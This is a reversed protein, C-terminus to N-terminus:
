RSWVGPLQRRAIEVVIETRREEFRNAPQRPVGDRAGFRPQQGRVAAIDEPGKVPDGCDDLESRSAAVLEARQDLGRPRAAPQQVDMQNVHRGGGELERAPREGGQVVKADDSVLRGVLGPEGLSRAFGFAGRPRQHQEESRVDAIEIRRAGFLEDPVDAGVQGDAICQQEAGVQHLLFARQQEGVVIRQLHGRREVAVQQHPDVALEIAVEVDIPERMASHPVGQFRADLHMQDRPLRLLDTM